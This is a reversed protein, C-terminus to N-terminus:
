LSTQVGRFYINYCKMDSNFILSYYPKNSNNYTKNIGVGAEANHKLMFDKGDYFGASAKQKEFIFRKM